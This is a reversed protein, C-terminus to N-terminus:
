LIGLSELFTIWCLKASFVLSMYIMSLTMSIIDYVFLLTLGFSEKDINKTKIMLILNVWLIVSICMVNM